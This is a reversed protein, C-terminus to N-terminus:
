AWMVLSFVSVLAEPGIVAFTRTSLEHGRMVLERYPGEPLSDIQPVARGVLNVPPLVEAAWATAHLLLLGGILVHGVKGISISVCGDPTNRPKM